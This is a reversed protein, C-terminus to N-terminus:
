TLRLGRPEVSGEVEAKGNCVWMVGLESVCHVRFRVWCIIYVACVNASSVSYFTYVGELASSSQDEARYMM